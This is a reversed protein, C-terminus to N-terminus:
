ADSPRHPENSPEDVGTHTLAQEVENQSTIGLKNFINTIHLEVTKDSLYLSRAIQRNTHGAAMMRAIELERPTLVAMGREPTHGRSTRTPADEAQREAASTQRVGASRHAPLAVREGLAGLLDRETEYSPTDGRDSAPEELRMRLEDEAVRLESDRKTRLLAAWLPPSPQSRDSYWLQRSVGPPLARPLNPASRRRRGNAILTVLAIISVFVSIGGLLWATTTTSSTATAALHLSETLPKEV